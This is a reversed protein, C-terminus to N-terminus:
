TKLNYEMEPTIEQQSLRMANKDFIFFSNDKYIM